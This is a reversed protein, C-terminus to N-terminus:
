KRSLGEITDNEYKSRGQSIEETRIIVCLSTDKRDFFYKIHLIKTFSLILTGLKRFVRLSYRFTTVLDM